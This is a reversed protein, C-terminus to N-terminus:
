VQGVILYEEVAARKVKSHTGFHYTHDRRFVRVDRKTEGMLSTLEDLDPYGNSSYSLVITQHKFRAFLRRFADVAEKRYSFPTFKKPIKRVKTSYDIDLGQWYCSLGELFHYRKIYCNDDARPVYPPDLYVLDIGKTAVKFVDNRQAHNRRGNSFVAENFAEVQEFFHEEVSLRLDRRGDDYKSLDGSITFVGRPQRKACSRMLASMALAQQHTNDLQRINCSIRDLFRLDADTYFIGSFTEEIFNHTNAPRSMLTKMAPGDLHVSNNQILAKGITSSLNLFDSSVTRKDMSKLLYAVSTSGSFADLATEFELTSLVDHIWPLLRKKSGMYRIEPFM